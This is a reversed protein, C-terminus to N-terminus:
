RYHKSQNLKEALVWISFRGSGRGTPKPLKRALGNDELRQFVKAARQRLAYATREDAYDFGWLAALSRAVDDSTVGKRERLLKFVLRQLEGKSRRPIRLPQRADMKNTLPAMQAELEAVRKELRAIARKRVEISALAEGRKHRLIQLPTLNSPM